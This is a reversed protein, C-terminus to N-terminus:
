FLHMLKYEISYIMVEGEGDAPLYMKSTLLTVSGATVRRAGSGIVTTGGGM